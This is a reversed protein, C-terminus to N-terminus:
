IIMWIHGNTRKVDHQHLIHNKWWEGFVWRLRTLYGQKELPQGEGDVGLRPQMGESANNQSSPTSSCWKNTPGRRPAQITVLSDKMQGKYDEIDEGVDFSLSKSSKAVMSAKNRGGSLMKLDSGDNMCDDILVVDRMGMMELFKNAQMKGNIPFAARLQQGEISGECILLFIYCCVKGLNLDSVFSQLTYIHKMNLHKLQHYGLECAGDKAM